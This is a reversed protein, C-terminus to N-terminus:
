SYYYAKWLDGTQQSKPVYKWYDSAFQSASGGARVYASRALQFVNSTVDGKAAAAGLIADASEGASLTPNAAAYQAATAARNAASEAASAARSKANESATFQRQIEAERAQAAEAERASNWSNLDSKQKEVIDVGKLAKERGLQAIQGSLQLNEDNQQYNAQQMGPLYKTSLYTAQEDLPIGSFSMGRGTAQNNIANFGQGKEATIGARQADYKAGLGAQQQQIVATSGAYAPDLTAMVDALSQVQPAAM